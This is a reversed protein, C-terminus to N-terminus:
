YNNEDVNLQRMTLHADKEAKAIEQESCKKRETKHYLDHLKPIRM